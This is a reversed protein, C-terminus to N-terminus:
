IHYNIVPAYLDNLWEQKSPPKLYFVSASGCFPELYNQHGPFFSLIWPALNHKGGFFPVPM